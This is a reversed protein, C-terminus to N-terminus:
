HLGRCGALWAMAGIQAPHTQGAEDRAIWVIRPDAADTIREVLTTCLDADEDEEIDRPGYPRCRGAEWKISLAPKEGGQRGWEWGV